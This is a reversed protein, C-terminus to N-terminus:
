LLRKYIDLMSEIQYKLLWYANNYALTDKLVQLLAPYYTETESIMRFIRERSLGGAMTSLNHCRDLCKVLVAKPNARMERYYARMVEDRNEDTTDAHTVLRVIERAEEGTPLDKLGIGPCDEVVDHLLCAALLADDRIDLALAHCALSYPHYIYPVASRKRSVGKHAEEAFDVARLTQPLKYNRACTKLYTKMHTWDYIADKMKFTGPKEELIASVSVDLAAALGIVNETDPKYADREWASVAQFTVGLKEALQEQTLRKGERLAKINTGISM